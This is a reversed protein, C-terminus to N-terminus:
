QQLREEGRQPYGCQTLSHMTLMTGDESKHSSLQLKWDEENCVYALPPHIRSPHEAVRSTPLVRATVPNVPLLVRHFSAM